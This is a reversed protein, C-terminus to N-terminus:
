LDKLEYKMASSVRHDLYCKLLNYEVTNQRDKYYESKNIIESIKIVRDEPCSMTYIDNMMFTLFEYKTIPSSFSEKLM